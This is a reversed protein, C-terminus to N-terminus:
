VKKLLGTLKRIPTTVKWSASHLMSYYYKELTKQEKQLQIKYTNLYELEDILERTIKEVLFGLAVPKNWVAENITVETHQLKEILELNFRHVLNSEGVAIISICDDSLKSLSGNLNYQLAKNKIWLLQQIPNTM